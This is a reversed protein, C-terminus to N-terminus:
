QLGSLRDRLKQKAKPSISEDLLMKRAAALKASRGRADQDTMADELLLRGALYYLHQDKRQTAKEQLSGLRMAAQAAPRLTGDNQFARLSKALETRAEIVDNSASKAMSLLTPPLWAVCVFAIVIRPWWRPSRMLSQKSLSMIRVSASQATPTGPAKATDIDDSRRWYGWGPLPVLVLWVLIPSVILHGKTLMDSLIYRGDNPGLYPSTQAIVDMVVAFWLVAIGIGAALVRRRWSLWTSILMLSVFLQVPPAAWWFRLEDMLLYPTPWGPLSQTWKTIALTADIMTNSTLGWIVSTLALCGLFALVVGGRQSLWVLWLPLVVFLPFMHMLANHWPDFAEGWWGAVVALWGVRVLNLFGVGGVGLLLGLIKKRRSCPYALVGAVFIAIPEIGSCEPTVDLLRSGVWIQTGRIETAVGMWGPLLDATQAVFSRYGVAANNEMLYYEFAVGVASVGAFILIFRFASLSEARKRANSGSAPKGDQHTSPAQGASSDEPTRQQHSNRKAM